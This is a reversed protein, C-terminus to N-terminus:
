FAYGIGFTLNHNLDASRYGGSEACIGIGYHINATLHKPIKFIVGIEPMVQIAAGYKNYSYSYSSSYYSDHRYQLGLGAGLGLSAHMWPLVRKTVGAFGMPLAEYKTPSCMFKAYFGWKSLYGGMLGLNGLINSYYNSSAYPAKPGFIVGGQLSLFWTGQNKRMRFVMDKDGIRMKKDSMGAYRAIMRKAFQGVELSFSGDADTTTSEAGGIVTVEAGPLFNGTKKDIVFGKITRTQGMACISSAALFFSIFLKRM